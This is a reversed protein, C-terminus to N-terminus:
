LRRVVTADEVDAEEGDLVNSAATTRTGKVRIIDKVSVPIGHMPGLDVGGRFQAEAALAAAEASERLVTIFADLTPNLRDIRQLTARAAELPSGEGRRYLAGLEVASLACLDTNDTKM